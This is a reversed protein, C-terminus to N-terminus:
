EEVVKGKEKEEPLAAPTKGKKFLISTSTTSKEKLSEIEKSQCFLQDLCTQQGDM